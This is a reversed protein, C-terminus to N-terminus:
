RGPRNLYPEPDRAWGRQRWEFHLHPARAFGTMGVEGLAQGRTVRQGAFVHAARLHAYLTSYGGHHLVIVVNGYGTLGNDAYAVLGGRAAVVPAGEPAGIDVGRHLRHSLSGRRTRGFGRGVRGNPVPFRMRLQDDADAVAAVWEPYPRENMLVMATARHGLALQRALVAAAGRPTPVLREGQCHDRYGGRTRCRAPMRRRQREPTLPWSDTADTLWRRPVREALDVLVPETVAAGPTEDAETRDEQAVSVSALASLALLLAFVSPLRRPVSDLM